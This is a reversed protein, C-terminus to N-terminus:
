MTEMAERMMRAVVMVLKDTPIHKLKIRMASCAKEILQGRHEHCSKALVQFNEDPYDWPDRGKLYNVHHVCLEENDKGCCECRFSAARFLELRKKQWRPDRLKKAYPSETKM